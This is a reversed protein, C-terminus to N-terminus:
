ESVLMQIFVIYHVSLLLVVAEDAEFFSRKSSVYPLSAAVKEYFLSDAAHRKVIIKWVQRHLSIFFNNVNVLNRVDKQLILSQRPREQPWYKIIPPKYHVYHRRCQEANTFRGKNEFVEGAEDKNFAFVYSFLLAVFNGSNGHNNGYKEVM